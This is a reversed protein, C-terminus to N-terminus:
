SAPSSAAPRPARSRFGRHGRGAPVVLARSPQQPVAYPRRPRTAAWGDGQRDGARHDRHRHRRWHLRDHALQVGPLPDKPQYLTIFSVITAIAIPSQPSLALGLTGADPLGPPGLAKGVYAGVLKGIIRPFVFVPVLLLGKWWEGNGFPEWIAGAILLFILYLPRELQLMTERLDKRQKASLPLNTLLAGAIACTVLPSFRLHGSMGASIAIAGLLYAVEEPITKASRVLVYTLIGLVGGLGLTLFLWASEPLHWGLHQDADPRMIACVIALVVIGAGDNLATVRAVIQAATLGASRAIAVAAVPAAPAACAGLALADRIAGGEAGTARALESGSPLFGDFHVPCLFVLAVACAAATTAFPIASEAVVVTGTKKPFVDIERVDFQMGVIFGLWGLGFELVPRLHDVVNKTLIGVAPIHFVVGMLLFPLGTALMVTLGLRKEIRRVYPHAGVVALGLAVALGIVVRVVDTQNAAEGESAGAVGPAFLVAAVVATSALRAALRRTM